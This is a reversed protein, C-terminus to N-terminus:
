WTMRRLIRAKPVARGDAASDWLFGDVSIKRRATTGGAKGDRNLWISEESVSRILGAFEIRLTSDGELNACQPAFGDWLLHGM